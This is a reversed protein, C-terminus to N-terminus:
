EKAKSMSALGSDCSSPAVLTSRPKVVERLANGAVAVSTPSLWGDAIRLSSSAEALHSLIHLVLSKLWQDTYFSKMNLWRIFGHPFHSQGVISKWLTHRMKYENKNSLFLYFPLGREGREDKPSAM